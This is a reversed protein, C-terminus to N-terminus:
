MKVRDKRIVLSQMDAGWVTIPILGLPEIMGSMWIDRTCLATLICVEAARMAKKFAGGLGRKELGDLGLEVMAPYAVHVSRFFAFTTAYSLVLNDSWTYVISMYVLAAVSVRDRDLKGASHFCMHSLVMGVYVYEMEISPTHSFFRSHVAVCLLAASMLWTIVNAMPAALVTRGSFRETTVKETAALAAYCVTPWVVASFAAVHLFTVIM